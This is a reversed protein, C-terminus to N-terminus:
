VGFYFRYMDLKYTFAFITSAINKYISSKFVLICSKGESFSKNQFTIM